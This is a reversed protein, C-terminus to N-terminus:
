VRLAASCEGYASTGVGRFFGRVGEEAYIVRTAHLLGHYKVHVTQVCLRSRLLDLPYTTVTSM